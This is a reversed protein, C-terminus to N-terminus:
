ITVRPIETQQGPFKSIEQFFLFDGHELVVASGLDRTAVAAHLRLYLPAHLVEISWSASWSVVATILPHMCCHQICSAGGADSMAPARGFVVM